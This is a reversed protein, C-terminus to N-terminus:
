LQKKNKFLNKREPHLYRLIKIDSFYKKFNKEAFVAIKTRKPM